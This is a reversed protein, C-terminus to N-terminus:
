ERVQPAVSRATPSAEVPPTRVFCAAFAYVLALAAAGLFVVAASFRAWAYGGLTPISMSVAHDLTVSLALSPTVDERRVVIKDLYTTRAMGVSFLLEDCVYCLCVLYLPWNAWHGLGLRAGHGYGLCVLILAVGEGVLIIREGLRDILKGIQPQLLGGLVSNIMGLAALTSPPQRFIKVLVWPGFTLFVQKRAGFLVSLVYYLGYRRRFVMPRQRRRDVPESRMRLYIASALLAFAAGALFVAGYAGPWRRTVFFVVACGLITALRRTAGVQGLRRGRGGTGALQLALTSSAPQQLHSGSSWMMLAAIMLTYDDGLFALGVMGGAVGATAVAGLRSAPLFFLGAAFIAALFGPLERPFELRGRMEPGMDFTDSLFNNITSHFVGAAAGVFAIAGLFILLQPDAARLRAGANSLQRRLM